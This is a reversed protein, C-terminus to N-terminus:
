LVVHVQKPSFADVQVDTFQADHGPVYTEITYSGASLGMLSFAGHQIIGIKQAQGSRHCCPRLKVYGLLDGAGEPVARTAVSGMIAAGTTAEAHMSDREALDDSEGLDTLRDEMDFNLPMAELHKDEGVNITVATPSRSTPIHVFSKHTTFGRLVSEAMYTGPTLKAKFKNHVIVSMTPAKGKSDVSHLKIYGSAGNLAHSTSPLVVTGEVQQPNNASGHQQETEGLPASTVGASPAVVDKVRKITAKAATVAQKAQKLAVKARTSQVEEALKVAKKTVQNDKAHAAKLKNRASKQDKEHRSALKQKFEKNHKHMKQRMKHQMKKKAKTLNEKNKHVQNATTAKV